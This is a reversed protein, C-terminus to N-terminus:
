QCPHSADAKCSLQDMMGSCAVDFGMDQLAMLESPDLVYGVTFLSM